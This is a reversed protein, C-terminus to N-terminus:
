LTQGIRSIAAGLAGELEVISQQVGGEIAQLMAQQAESIQQWAQHVETFQDGAGDLWDATTAGAQTGWTDMETQVNGVTARVQDAMGSMAGFNGKILM